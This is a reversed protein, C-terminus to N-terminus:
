QINRIFVPIENFNRMFQFINDLQSMGPVKEIETKKEMDCHKIQM